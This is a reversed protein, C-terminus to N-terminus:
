PYLHCSVHHNGAIAHTAPSISKCRDMVKPCRGAFACGVTDVMPDPPEGGIFQAEGIARKRAGIKPVSAMLAQTYPHAAGKAIETSPVTEVVKGLYMVAVSDAIYPVLSLDHTIFIMSLSRDKKLRLLLNLIQAQMSVDLASVAEDCILLDPELALARAIAIRQKQGGSFEHPLRDAVAEPLGVLTLLERMRRRRSERSGVANIELPSIISKGVSWRPDLSGFPDQFVMQVAAPKVGRRSQASWSSGNVAISGGALEALGAIAKGLTSKGCGSEGVLTLTQGKAVELSIDRIVRLTGRSTRYTVEVNQLTLAPLAM